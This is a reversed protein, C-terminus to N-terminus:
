RHFDMESLGGFIHNRYDRPYCYKESCHTRGLAQDLEDFTMLDAPPDYIGFVRKLKTIVVGM